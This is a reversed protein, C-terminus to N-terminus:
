RSATARGARTARRPRETRCVRTIATLIRGAIAEPELASASARAAERMAHMRDEATGFARSLADDIEGPGDPRFPWGTVGERVLEEVAQSYVSGLVPLGAAMAENVVLGWTDALTPFVLIGAQAYVEPLRDYPVHGLFRFSLNGPRPLGELRGRLPGEGALWFEITRERHAGAWDCLARAFPVLGKGDVLRGVYLLRMQRHADRALPARGFRQMDSPYPVTFVKDDGAGYAAVYRAGSRGNVLVGDARRLLQRRIGQRVRSRGMETRESLDAWVILRSSPHLCRYVAAQLTRAGMQGAVVVQPRDRCLLWLTDYPVHLYTRERFGSPHRWVQRIALNRQVVVDRIPLDVEWRRDPEMLTSLYLRCNPLSRALVRYVPVMYPPVFNTVIGVRVDM